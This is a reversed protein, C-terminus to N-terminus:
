PPLYGYKELIGRATPSSLFELFRRAAKPNMLSGFRLIIAGQAIPQYSDKPLEIWKGQGSVAPALVISKATFGIDVSKSNIYQNVQSISEGYVLKQENAARLKFHEMANIAERGYPTLEPSAMAIKKVAPDNLVQIGKSLNIPKMTWLVLMGKAYVKPTDVAVGDKYLSNPYAMDDSLFLDFPAGSKIQATLIASSGFVGKVEIGTSKSFAQQLDAFAYKVDSSAAVALPKADTIACQFLFIAVALWAISKLLSKPPINTFNLSYM